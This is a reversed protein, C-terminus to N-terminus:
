ARGQARITRAPVGAVTVDDPVDRNVLSGAGVVSRAGVSVGQMVTAGAGILAGADVRVGSGLVAGPGIFVHDGITVDHSIVAHLRAALFDGIVTGSGVICGESLIAGRGIRAYALDISPHVLSAVTASHEDLLSAVQRADAVVGSVNLFVSTGNRILEPLLTRDGLVPHGLVQSGAFERRDDIFGRMHWTPQARNIADILKVLDRYKSGFVVLDRAVADRPLPPASLTV